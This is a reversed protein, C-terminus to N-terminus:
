IGAGAQSGVLKDGAYSVIACVVERDDLETWSAELPHLFYFDLASTEYDHGVFGEFRDYCGTEAATVVAADGPFTTGPIDFLAYVEADHPDGCPVGELSAVQDADPLNFCDGNQMRLAGLGGGEIIEGDDGRVTNDDMLGAGGFVAVAGIVASAVLRKM